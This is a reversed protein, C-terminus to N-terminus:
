RPMGVYVMVYRNGELCHSARYVYLADPEFVNRPPSDPIDLAEKLSKATPYEGALSLFVPPKRDAPFAEEYGDWPGGECVIVATDKVASM